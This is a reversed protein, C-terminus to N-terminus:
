QVWFRGRTQEILYQIFGFLSVINSSLSNENKYTELRTEARDLIKHVESVTKESVVTDFATNWAQSIRYEQIKSLCAGEYKVGIYQAM